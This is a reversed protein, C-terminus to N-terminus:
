TRAHGRCRHHHQASIIDRQIAKLHMVVDSCPQDAIGADIVSVMWQRFGKSHGNLKLAATHPSSM